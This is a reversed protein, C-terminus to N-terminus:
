HLQKLISERSSKYENAFAHHLYNGVKNLRVLLLKQTKKHVGVM